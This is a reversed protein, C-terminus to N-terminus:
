QDYPSNCCIVWGQAKGTVTFIGLAQDSSTFLHPNPPDVTPLAFAPVAAGGVNMNGTMPANSNGFADGQVFRITGAADLTLFCGLVKIYHLGNTPPAILTFGAAGQNVPVVFPPEYRRHTAEHPTEYSHLDLDTRRALLHAHLDAPVADAEVTTVGPAFMGASYDYLQPLIVAEQPPVGPASPLSWRGAAGDNAELPDNVQGLKEHVTDTM